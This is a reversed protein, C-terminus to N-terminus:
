VVHLKEGHRFNGNPVSTEIWPEQLENMLHHNENKVVMAVLEYQTLVMQLWKMSSQEKWIEDM